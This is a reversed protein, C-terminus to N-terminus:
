QGKLFDDASVPTGDQATNENIGAGPGSANIPTNVGPGGTINAIFGLLLIILTIGGLATLLTKFLNSKRKPAAHDDAANQNAATSIIRGSAKALARSIAMLNEVADDHNEFAAITVTEGKPNKLILTADGELTQIELASIKINGLDMQWLIPTKATPFSLILKGDVISAPANSSQTKLITLM